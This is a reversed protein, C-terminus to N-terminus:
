GHRVPQYGHDLELFTRSPRSGTPQGSVATHPESTLRAEPIATCPRHHRAILPRARARLRVHAPPTTATTAAAPSAAYKTATPSSLASLSALEILASIPTAPSATATYPVTRARRAM